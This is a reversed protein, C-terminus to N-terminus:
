SEGFRSLYIVLLLRSESIRSMQPAVAPGRRLCGSRFATTHSIADIAVWLYFRFLCVAIFNRHLRKVARRRRRILGFAVSTLYAEMGYKLGTRNVMCTRFHHASATWVAVGIFPFSSSHTPFKTNVTINAAVAVVLILAVIGIM